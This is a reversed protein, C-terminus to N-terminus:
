YTNSCLLLRVQEYSTLPSGRLYEMALLIGREDVESFYMYGRKEIVIFPYMYVRLPIEEMGVELKIWKLRFLERV